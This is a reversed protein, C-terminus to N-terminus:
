ITDNSFGSQTYGFSFMQVKKRRARAGDVTRPGFRVTGAALSCALTLACPLRRATREAPPTSTWVTKTAVRLARGVQRQRSDAWCCVLVPNREADQTDHHGLWTCFVALSTAGYKLFPSIFAMVGHWEDHRM